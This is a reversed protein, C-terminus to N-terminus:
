PFRHKEPREVPRSRLRKNEVLLADREQEIKKIYEIAGVLVMAKSLQPQGVARVGSCQPLTPVTRRLRELEFNLGERYKREVQNHPVRSTLKCKSSGCSNSSSNFSARDLCLRGRKRPRSKPTSEEDTEILLSDDELLPPLSEPSSAGRYLTEESSFSHPSICIPELDFCDNTTPDFPLDPAFQGFQDFPSTNFSPCYLDTSTKLGIARPTVQYNPAFDASFKLSTIPRTMYPETYYADYANSYPLSEIIPSSDSDVQPDSASIDSCNM